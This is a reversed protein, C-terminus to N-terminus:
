RTVGVPVPLFIFGVALVPVPDRCLQVLRYPNRSGSVHRRENGFGDDARRQADDGGNGAVEFLYATDAVPM